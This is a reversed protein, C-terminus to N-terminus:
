HLLLTHIEWVITLVMKETTCYNQGSDFLKRKAYATTFKVWIIKGLAIVGMM